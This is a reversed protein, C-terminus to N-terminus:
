RPTLRRRLQKADALDVMGLANLITAQDGTPVTPSYTKEAQLNLHCTALADIASAATM